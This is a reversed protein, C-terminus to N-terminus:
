GRLYSDDRDIWDQRPPAFFDFDITDELATASHPVDPPIILTEGARLVLEKGAVNFQLAGSEVYAIQENPHRHEPVVCGKKMFIRAIMSKEGSVFQRELLSNMQETPITHWRVHQMEASKKAEVAETSM